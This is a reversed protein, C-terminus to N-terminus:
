SSEVPANRVEPNHPKIDRTWKKITRLSIQEFPPENPNNIALKVFLTSYSKYPLFMTGYFTMTRNTGAIRFRVIEVCVTVREGDVIFIFKRKHLIHRWIHKDPHKRNYDKQFQRAELDYKNAIESSIPNFDQKTKM